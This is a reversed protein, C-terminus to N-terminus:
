FRSQMDVDSLPAMFGYNCLDTEHEVYYFIWSCDKVVNPKLRWAKCYESISNLDATVNLAIEIKAKHQLACTMMQTISNGALRKHFRQVVTAGTGLGPSTREETQAM